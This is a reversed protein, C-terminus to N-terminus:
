AECTANKGHQHGFFDADRGACSLRKLISSSQMSDKTGQTPGTLALVVHENFSHTVSDTLPASGYM